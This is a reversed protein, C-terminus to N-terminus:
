VTTGTGMVMGLLAYLGTDLGFIFLGMVIIVVLVIGFNKTTQSVSPWTIKKLEGKCALLYKWLRQFVNPKKKKANTKSATKKADAKKVDAKKADAM